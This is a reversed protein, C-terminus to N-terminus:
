DLGLKKKALSTIVEKALDKAVDLSMSSLGSDKLKDWASKDRINDLYKHGEYTLKGCQFNNASSIYGADFLQFYHYKLEDETYTPLKKTLEEIFLFRITSNTNEEICLMLDRVLDHNLKM